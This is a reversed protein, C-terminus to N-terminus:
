ATKFFKAALFRAAYSRITLVKYCEGVTRLHTTQLLLPHCKWGLKLKLDGEVRLMLEM